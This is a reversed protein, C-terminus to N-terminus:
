NLVDEIIDPYQTNFNAQVWSRLQALEGQDLWTLSKILEKRFLIKENSVAMLVAMQHELM